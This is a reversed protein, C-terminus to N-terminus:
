RKSVLKIRQELPISHGFNWRQLIKSQSLIFNVCLMGYFILSKEQNCPGRTLFFSTKYYPTPLFRLKIDRNSTQRANTLQLSTM